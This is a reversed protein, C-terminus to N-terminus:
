GYVVEGLVAMQIATDYTYADPEGSDYYRYGSYGEEWALDNWAKRLKEVTFLGVITGDESDMINCFDRKGEFVEHCKQVSIPHMWYSNAGEFLEQLLENTMEQRAM